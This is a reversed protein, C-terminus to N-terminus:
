QNQIHICIPSVNNILQVCIFWVMTPYLIWDFIDISYYIHELVKSCWLVSHYFAVHSTWVHTLDRASSITLFFKERFFLSGDCYVRDSTCPYSNLSFLVVMELDIKAFDYRSMPQVSWKRGNRPQSKRMLNGIM